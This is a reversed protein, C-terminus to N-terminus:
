YLRQSSSSDCNIDIIYTEYYDEEELFGVIKDKQSSLIIFEHYGLNWLEMLWRDESVIKVKAWPLDGLGGLSLYIENDIRLTKLIKNFQFSLNKFFSAIPFKHYPNADFKAIIEWVSNPIPPQSYEVYEIFNLYKCNFLISNLTKLNLTLRLRAKLEESM